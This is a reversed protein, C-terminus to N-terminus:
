IVHRDILTWLESNVTWKSFWRCTFCARIQYVLRCYYFTFHFTYCTSVVYNMMEVISYVPFFFCEIFPTRWIWHHLQVLVPMILSNLRFVMMQLIPKLVPIVYFLRSFVYAHWYVITNSSAELHISNHKVM